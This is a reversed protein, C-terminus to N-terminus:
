FRTARKDCSYLGAVVSSARDCSVRRLARDDWPRLERGECLPLADGADLSEASGRGMLATM